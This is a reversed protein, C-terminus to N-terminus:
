STTPKPWRRRRRYYAREEPTADTCRLVHQTLVNEIYREYTRVVVGCLPCLRRVWLGGALLPIKAM